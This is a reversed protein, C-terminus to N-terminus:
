FKPSDNRKKRRYRALGLLGSTGFLGFTATSSVGFVQGGVERIRHQRAEGQPMTVYFQDILEHYRAEFAPSTEDKFLEHSLTKWIAKEAEPNDSLKDLGLKVLGQSAIKKEAIWAPSNGKKFLLQELKDKMVRVERPDESLEPISTLVPHICEMVESASEDIMELMPIPRNVIESSLAADIRMSSDCLATPVDRYRGDESEHQIPTAFGYSIISAGISLLGFLFSCEAWDKLKKNTECGQFALSVSQATQNIPKKLGTKNLAPRNHQTLGTLNMSMM